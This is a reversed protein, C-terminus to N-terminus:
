VAKLKMDSSQIDIFFFYLLWGSQFVFYKILYYKIDIPKEQEDFQSLDLNEM